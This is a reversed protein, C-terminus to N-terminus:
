IEINDILRVTGFFAAVAILSHGICSQTIPVLSESDVLDVYDVKGGNEKIASSIMEKIESATMCDSQCLEKVMALLKYLIPAAARDAKTLLANRSSMALGDKEREIEGGIIAIDFNLDRVMRTIVKFQQYDKKGFFAADPEVINFLKTVITTVGRFFHPRSSACLGESVGDVQVWTSHGDRNESEHSGVVMTDDATINEPKYYLTAPLFLAHCGVSKLKEM